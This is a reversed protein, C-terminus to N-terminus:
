TFVKKIFLQIVIESGQIILTNKVLNMRTTGIIDSNFRHNENSTLECKRIINELNHEASVLKVLDIPNLNVELKPWQDSYLTYKINDFNYNASLYKIFKESGM